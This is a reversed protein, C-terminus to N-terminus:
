SSEKSIATSNDRKGTFHNLKESFDVRETTECEQRM